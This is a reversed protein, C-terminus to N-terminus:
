YPTPGGNAEIVANVRRPMSEVLNHLLNEPLADWEEQVMRRLQGLSSPPPTRKRLNEQMVSWLNEIPNLDPSYAPWTLTRVKAEALVGQAVRATHVPANDQQFIGNKRPFMTKLAPIAHEMLLQAHVAGTVSGSHLVLPGRGRWAFGAWVMCSESRAVRPALCDPEMEEGPERWVRTLAAKQFQTFSKEDTFFVKKWDKLRWGQRERCWALRKVRNAEKIFPKRVAIRSHLGVQHLTRRITKVCVSKGEQEEFATCLAKATFQRKGDTVLNKLRERGESDILPPRGTKKKPPIKEPNSQQALLRGVTKHHCGITTAIARYSYGLNRASIIGGRQKETLM